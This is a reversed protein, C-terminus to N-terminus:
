RNLEPHENFFQVILPKTAPVFVHGSSHIFTAVPMHSQLSDFITCNEGCARGEAECGNLKLAAAIADQQTAFPVLRDNRGGYIFVPKPTQPRFSPVLGAAGPAIAAFVKPREAWLLYCFFGGNSFGTAYIRDQDISFKRSLTAVM